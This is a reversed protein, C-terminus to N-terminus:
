HIAMDVILARHDSGMPPGVRCNTVSLGGRYLVHDIPVLRKRGSSYTPLVGFGQRANALRTQKILDSFGPTWMTANLDGVLIVAGDIESIRKGIEALQADRQDRWEGSFPPVTHTVVISVRQGNLETDAILTPYTGRTVWQRDANLLPTKSLLAIGLMNEGVCHAWYPYIDRLTELQTLREQTVEQLALIDPAEARIIGYAHRPNPSDWQLNASMIRFTNTSAKATPAGLYYPLVLYAHYTALITATVIVFRKRRLQTACFLLIAAVFYLLEFSTANDILWHARAFLLGVTFCAFGAVSLFLCADFLGVLFQTRTPSGATEAQLM